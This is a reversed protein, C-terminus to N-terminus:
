QQDGPHQVDFRLLHAAERAQMASREASDRHDHGLLHLAAHVGLLLMESDLSGAHAASQAAAVAPAIVVDGVHPMFGFADGESPDDLPFSLVDTPGEVGMHESNLKAIDANSVLFVDASGNTVGEGELTATVAQRLRELLETPLPDATDREDSVSVRVGTESLGVQVLTRDTGTAIGPNPQPQIM